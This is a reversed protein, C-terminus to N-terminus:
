SSHGISRGAMRLINDAGAELLAAGLREGLAASDSVPGEDSSQVHESGRPSFVAAELHLRDGRVCALAGLPIQCGGQLKRLVAREATVCARTEAHDLAAILRQTEMDDARTEIGLAGQGVAPLMIEDDLIQTIKANLGLRTVGALALVIADFEGSELKKIRTDVNGRVDVVELDPRHHRLQAQRRLSSTGVRSAHPLTQLTRGGRSILCDRPDERRTIAPFALGAPTETPVDKMSHVALDVSGALLADELEKIFIGKSVAEAGFEALPKAVSASQWHDGSTRIRVIETEVNASQKLQDAIFNAQWLALASGRTGIRLRKM